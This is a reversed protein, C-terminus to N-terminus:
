IFFLAFSFLIKKMEYENLTSMNSWYFIVFQLFLELCKFCKIVEVSNPDSSTKIILGVVYKKIGTSLCLHWNNTCKRFSDDQEWMIATNYFTFTHLLKEMSVLTLTYLHECQLWVTGWRWVPETSSDELTNQDRDGTDSSCLVAICVAFLPFM